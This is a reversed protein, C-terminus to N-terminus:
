SPVAVAAKEDFYNQTQLGNYAGNDSEAWVVRALLGADDNANILSGFTQGTEFRPADACRILGEPDNFNIPDGGVYGYMNWSGPDRREVADTRSPDPAFIARHYQHLVRTGYDLGTADRYYTGFKAAREGDAGARGWLPYSGLASRGLEGASSLRDTAVWKGEAKVLRGGFYWNEM